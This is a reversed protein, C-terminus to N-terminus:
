PVPTVTGNDMPAADPTPGVQLSDSLMVLIADVLTTSILFVRQNEMSEADVYVYYAVHDPNADGIEIVAQYTQGSADQGQFRFRYAPTPRLGFRELNDPTADFLQTTALYPIVAAADEPVAQNLVEAPIGAQIGPIVPAYWMQQPDRMLLIGKQATVDLVELGTIQASSTVQPFLVTPRQAQQTAEFAQMQAQRAAPDDLMLRVIM